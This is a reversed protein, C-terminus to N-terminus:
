GRVARYGLGHGHWAKILKLAVRRRVPENQEALWVEGMGGEGIRELLRYRDIIQLPKGSTSDLTTEARPDGSAPNDASLRPPGELFSGGAEGAALLSEVASRLAADAGCQEDLYASRNAPERESAALFLGKIREQRLDAM